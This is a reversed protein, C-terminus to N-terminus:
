GILISKVLIIKMGAMSFAAIEIYGGCMAAIAL